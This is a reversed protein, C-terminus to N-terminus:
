MLLNKTAFHNNTSNRKKWYGCKDRWGCYYACRNPQKEKNKGFKWIDCELVEDPHEILYEIENTKDIIMDEVLDFDYTEIDVFTYINKLVASGGKNLALLKIQYEEGLEKFLLYRYINLQTEYTGVDGSAVKKYGGASLLKYDYIIKDEHDILDVTGTITWNNVKHSLPKEVEFGDKSKFIEEFGKHIVSGLTNNGFEDDDSPDGNKWRLLLQQNELGFSSASLSKTHKPVGNYKTGEIVAKIIREM